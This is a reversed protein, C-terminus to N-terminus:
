VETTTGRMWGQAIESVGNGMVIEGNIKVTEEVKIKKGLVGLVKTSVKISRDLFRIRVKQTDYIKMLHPM